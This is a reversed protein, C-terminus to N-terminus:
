MKVVIFCISFTSISLYMGVCVKIDQLPPSISFLSSSFVLRHVVTGHVHVSVSALRDLWCLFALKPQMQM